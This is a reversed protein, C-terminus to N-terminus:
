QALLKEATGPALGFEEEIMRNWADRKFTKEDPVPRHVLNM